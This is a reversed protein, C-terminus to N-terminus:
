REPYIGADIDRRLDRVWETIMDDIWEDREAPSAEGFLKADQYILVRRAELRNSEDALAAKLNTTIRM